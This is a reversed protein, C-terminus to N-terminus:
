PKHVIYQPQKSTPPAGRPEGSPSLHAPLTTTVTPVARSAWHTRSPRRTFNCCVTRSSPLRWLRRRWICLHCATQCPAPGHVCLKWSMPFCHDIHHHLLAVHWFWSSGNPFFYVTETLPGFSLFGFHPSRQGSTNPTHCKHINTMM